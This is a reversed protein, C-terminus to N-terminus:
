TTKEKWIHHNHLLIRFPQKTSSTERRKNSYLDNILRIYEHNMLSHIDDIGKCIHVYVNHQLSTINNICTCHVHVHVSSTVHSTIFITNIFTRIIITIFIPIPINIVISHFSFSSYDAFDPKTKYRPGVTSWKRKGLNKRNENIPNMKKWCLQPLQSLNKVAHHSHLAKVQLWFM